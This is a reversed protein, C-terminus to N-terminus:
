TFARTFGSGISKHTRGDASRGEQREQEEKYAISYEATPRALLRKFEIPEGTGLCIGYQGANMRALAAEVKKLYLSARNGLRAEMGTDLDRKALDAEDPVNTDGESERRDAVAAIEAITRAREELLIKRFMVVEEGTLARRELKRSM